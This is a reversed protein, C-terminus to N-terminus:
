FNVRYASVTITENSSSTVSVTILRVDAAPVGNWAAGPQTVSVAVSYGGYGPMNVGSSDQPPTQNLGHYDDIDDFTARSEGDAGIAVAAPGTPCAGSGTNVCGGGLPTAENWRKNLIEDMFANAVALARQRLYPRYSKGVNNTFLATMGALMAGLLVIVIITEVLTFGGQSLRSRM